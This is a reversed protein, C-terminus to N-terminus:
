DWNKNTPAGILVDLALQYTEEGNRPAAAVVMNQRGERHGVEGEDQQLILVEKLGLETATKRSEVEEWKSSFNEKRAGFKYEKKKKCKRSSDFWKPTSLVFAFKDANFFLVILVFLLSIWCVFLHSQLLCWRCGLQYCCLDFKVQGQRKFFLGFAGILLGAPWRLSDVPASLQTLHGLSPWVM